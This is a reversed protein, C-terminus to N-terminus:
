ERKLKDLEGEYMLLDFLIFKDTKKDYAVNGGFDSFRRQSQSVADGVAGLMKYYREKLPTIQPQDFMIDDFSNELAEEYKAVYYSVKEDAYGLKYDLVRVDEVDKIDSKIQDMEMLEEPGTSLTAKGIYEGIIDVRKVFYESNDLKVFVKFYKRDKSQRHRGIYVVRINENELIAGVREKDTMYNDTDTALTDIMKKADFMLGEKNEIETKFETTYVLAKGGKEQKIYSLNQDKFSEM